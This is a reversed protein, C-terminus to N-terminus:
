LNKNLLIELKFIAVCLKIFAAYASKKVTLLVVLTM